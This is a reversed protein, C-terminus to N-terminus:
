DLFTFFATLIFSMIIKDIQSDKEFQDIIFYFTSFNGYSYPLNSFVLTGYMMGGDTIKDMASQDDFNTTECSM